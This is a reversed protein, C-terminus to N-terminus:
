RRVWAEFAAQFKDLSSVGEAELQKAMAKGVKAEIKEKSFPLMGLVRHPISCSVKVFGFYHMVLGEVAGATSTGESGGITDDVVGGGSDMFIRSLGHTKRHSADEGSGSSDYNSGQMLDIHNKGSKIGTVQSFIWVMPKIGRPIYEDKILTFEYVPLLTKPNQLFKCGMYSVADVSLGPLLPVTSTIAVIPDQGSPAVSQVIKSQETWLQYLEPTAPVQRTPNAGGKLVLQWHQSDQFFELVHPLSTQPLPPTKHVFTGEFNFVAREKKGGIGDDTSPFAGHGDESDVIHNLDMLTTAALSTTDRGEITEGGRTKLPPFLTDFSPRNRFAHVHDSCSCLGTLVIWFSSLRRNETSAPM